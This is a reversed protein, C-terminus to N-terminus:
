WRMRLCVSRGITVPNPMRVGSCAASNALKLSPATTPEATTSIMALLTAFGVLGSAQAGLDMSHLMAGAKDTFALNTIGSASPLDLMGHIEGDNDPRAYNGPIMVSNGLMNSATAIRFESLTEALGNLTQNMDTIGTVTSFQAMQAIMDTNEMPAFPDQNQLQTTMLTLFEEQGLQDNKAPTADDSSKVGLKDLISNLSNQSSTDINSM